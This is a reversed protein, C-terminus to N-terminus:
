RGRDRVAARAEREQDREQEARRKDWLKKGRALAIEVKVRGKSLYLRIPVMVEGGSRTRSNLRDIEARHLLLKRARLPDHNAYGGHSYPAIHCNFLYAEGRDVRAFADRLNAGGARLSKVETGLLQLGAEVKEGIHYNHFALRNIALVKDGRGDKKPKV